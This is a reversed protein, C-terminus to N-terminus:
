IEYNEIFKEITQRIKRKCDQNLQPELMADVARLRWSTMLGGMIATRAVIGVAYAYKDGDTIIHGCYNTNAGDYEILFWTNKSPILCSILLGHHVNVMGIVEYTNFWEREDQSFEHVM